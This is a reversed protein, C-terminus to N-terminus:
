SWLGCLPVAALRDGFSLTRKGTYLVVGAKFRNGLKDRLHRLGAFDKAAVSATTKVEVGAVEGSGLELIVDVERQQKDRYHFLSAPSEAWDCQRALEMAAFTEVIPGALTSSQVIGKADINMLHTLLGTDTMYIKPTKVQRSGLNVHWPQLRWVLFLEELIRTRAAVTKHDVGLEGAVSRSSVLGASRTAVIRLLREVGATDRVGTVDQLDRGLITSVYSTFFRARGRTGRDRADPFGGAVIQAAYAGRGVEADDIHPFEGALLRDIFTERRGNLEGQSFPWMRVYDVRGPLADAISPMTLINASGALLFQGRENNTDLREKIALMLDPARQVEDIVAPGSVGAIFGTPDELASRRTADNDLTLYEAPHERESIARALTSKGSQRAGLLCVARAETLAEVVTPRVNREIFPM